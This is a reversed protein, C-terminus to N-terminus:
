GGHQGAALGPQGAVVVVVGVQEISDHELRCEGAAPHDAHRVLQPAQEVADVIGPQRGREGEAAPALDAM